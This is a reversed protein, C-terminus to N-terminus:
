KLHYEKKLVDVLKRAINYPDRYYENQRRQLNLKRESLAHAIKNIAGPSNDMLPLDINLISDHSQPRDALLQQLKKLHYFNFLPERAERWMTFSSLDIESRGIQTLIAQDYENILRIIEFNRFYRLSGSNKLQSLTATKVGFQFKGPAFFTYYYLRAGSIGTGALKKLLEMELTDSFALTQSLGYLDKGLETTDAILDSVLAKAYEKARKNELIHERKNEVFFGLTIALFLMLFEWLYHTWKKRATHSHQHVEM